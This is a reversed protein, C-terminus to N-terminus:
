NADQTASSARVNQEGSNPPNPPIHVTDHADQVGMMSALHRLPLQSSNRAEQSHLVNSLAVSDPMNDPCPSFRLRLHELGEFLRKLYEGIWWVHDFNSKDNNRQLFVRLAVIYWWSCGVAAIMQFLIGCMAIPLWEHIFRRDLIDRIAPDLPNAIKNERGIYCACRNFSGVQTVAILGIISSGSLADKAYLLIYRYKDTSYKIIAAGAFYSTIWIALAAAEGVLRCRNHEPPVRSSIAIATVVSSTVLTWATGHCWLITARSLRAQDPLPNRQWKPDVKREMGDFLSPQCSYIGGSKLRLRVTIPADDSYDYVLRAQGDPKLLPIKAPIEHRFEVHDPPTSYDPANPKIRIQSRRKLKSLQDRFHNLKNPIEEDAQSVGIIASFYVAPLLWILLASFAISHAEINVWKGNPYLFSAKDSQQTKYFAFGFTQIFAFLAYFTTLSGTQRDAALSYATNRFVERVESHNENDSKYTTELVDLANQIFDKVSGRNGCEDYSQLILAYRRSIPWKTKDAPRLSVAREQCAALTYLLSAITNMPDGVLHFLTFLQAHLALPPRSFQILLLVLPIKWVEIRTWIDLGSYPNWSDAVFDRCSEATNKEFLHLCILDFKGTTPLTYNQGSNLLKVGCRGLLSSFRNLDKFVDSSTLSSASSNM